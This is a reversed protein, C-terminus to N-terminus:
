HLPGASDEFVGVEEVGGFDEAFEVGVFLLGKDFEAEVEEHEEEVEVAHDDGEDAVLASLVAIWGGAGTARSRRPHLAHLRFPAEQEGERTEPHRHKEAHKAARPPRHQFKPAPHPSPPPPSSSPLSPPLRPLQARTDSATPPSFPKMIHLPIPVSLHLVRPLTPPNM